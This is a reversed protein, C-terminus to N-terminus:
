FPISDDLWSDPCNEEYFDQQANMMDDVFRGAAIFDMPCGNEGCLFYPNDAASNGASVWARLEMREQATMDVHTKEYARLMEASHAAM